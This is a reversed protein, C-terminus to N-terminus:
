ADPDTSSFTRTAGIRKAIADLEAQMLRVEEDDNIEEFQWILELNEIVGQAHRRVMDKLLDRRERKM